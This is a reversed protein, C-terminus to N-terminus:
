PGARDIATAIQRGFKRIAERSMPRDSVAFGLAPLTRGDALDVRASLHSRRVHVVVTASGPKGLEALSAAIERCLSAVGGAAALLKEDGVVSCNQLPGGQKQEIACAGGTALATTVLTTLLLRINM